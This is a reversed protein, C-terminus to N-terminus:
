DVGAFGYRENWALILRREYKALLPHRFRSASGSSCQAAIQLPQGLPGSPTQQV